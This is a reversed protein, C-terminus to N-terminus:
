DMRKYHNGMQQKKRYKYLNWIIFPNIEIFFFGNFDFEFGSPERQRWGLNSIIFYEPDSLPHVKNSSSYCYIIVYGFTQILSYREFIVVYFSVRCHRFNYENLSIVFKPDRDRTPRIKMNCRFM